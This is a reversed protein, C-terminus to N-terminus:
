EDDDDRVTKRRKKTKKGKKSKKAEKEAKKAMDPAFKRFLAAANPEETDVDISKIV